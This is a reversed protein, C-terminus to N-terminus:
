SGVVVGKAQTMVAPTHVPIPIVFGPGQTTAPSLTAGKLTTQM